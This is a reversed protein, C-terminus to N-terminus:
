RTMVINLLCIKPARLTEYLCYAPLSTFPSTFLRFITRIKNLPVAHCSISVTFTSYCEETSYQLLAPPFASGSQFWALRIIVLQKTRDPVQDDQCYRIVAEILCPESAMSRNQEGNYKIVRYKLIYHPYQIQYFSNM